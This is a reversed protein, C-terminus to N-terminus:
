YDTKSPSSSQSTSSQARPSIETSHPLEIEPLSKKKPKVPTTTVGPLNPLTFEESKSKPDRQERKKPNAPTALGSLWVPAGGWLQGHHHDGTAYINEVVLNRDLKKLFNSRTNVFLPAQSLKGNLGALNIPSRKQGERGFSINSIAPHLVNQGGGTSSKNNSFNGIGFHLSQFPPPSETLMIHTTANREATSPRAKQDLKPNSLRVLSQLSKELMQIEAGNPNTKPQPTSISSDLTGRNQNNERKQNMSIKDFISYRANSIVESATTDGSLKRKMSGEKLSITWNTLTTRREDRKDTSMLIETKLKRLLPSSLETNVKNRLSPLFRQPFRDHTFYRHKLLDTCSLRHTPDMRLCCSLFELALPTWSSFHKQLGPSNTEPIRLATKLRANKSALQLHRLCPRGLLKVILYLQDIDSEGPFLPDGTMMEAFLCGIAWVDVPSSYHPDGVLLEPARYWRTAVYETCAENPNTVLRAFGFDCLKVVGLTSVLVNEPKVDRHVINNYHCYSIARTVQFIRERCMECELGGNYRELEDLLTGAVYEFVLYFRKRHRFVEILTVLNEHRLRKLMRIERLAMKRITTDEETELFRKIAVIENTDKHRSKTVIGYSGEGIVSLQEYKEM